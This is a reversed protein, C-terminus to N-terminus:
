PAPLSAGPSGAPRQSERSAPAVALNRFAHGFLVTIRARRRSSQQTRVATGIAVALSDFERRGAWQPGPAQDMRHLDIPPRQADDAVVHAVEAMGEPP